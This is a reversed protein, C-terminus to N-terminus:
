VASSGKILKTQAFGLFSSVCIYLSLGASLNAFIGTAVAVAILMAVKHRPDKAQASFILFFSLGILGPLVYYPDSASLDKIWWIFPARYLEISSRLAYNLGMLVPFQLLLPLCGGIPVLGNKRVLELQAKALAEPDDKYKIKLANMKKQTDKSKNMSKSGSSVFPLMLLRMLVTLIIIAWGYNGVLSYILNLLWLMLKAFPALWGYDMASELRKDVAALAASEKPGCYFSLHWTTKEQIVPGELIATLRNIDELKFYARQTFKDSDSVLANIFYRSEAGFIKPAAWITDITNKPKIKELSDRATYVLGFIKDYESVDAVHPVPVFLRPHLTDGPKVPEITLIMDVKYTDNSVLYEKTMRARPTTASYTVAVGNERTEKGIFVFEYPTMEDLAVLFAANARNLEAPPEITTLIGPLGGLERKFGLSRVSAAATSFEWDSKYGSVDATAFSDTLSNDYFDVETNIPQCMQSSSMATFSQGSQVADSSDSQKPSFFYNFTWMTMVAFLLPMVIDQLKM